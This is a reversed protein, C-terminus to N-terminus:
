PKVEAKRYWAIKSFSTIDMLNFAHKGLINGIFQGMIKYHDAWEKYRARPIQVIPLDYEPLASDEWSHKLMEPGYLKMLPEVFSATAKEPTSALLKQRRQQEEATMNEHPIGASCFPWAWEMSASLRYGCIDCELLSIGVSALDADSETKPIFLSM